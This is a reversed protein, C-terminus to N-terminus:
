RPRLDAAPRAPQCSAGAPRQAPPHHPPHRPPVAAQPLDPLQLGKGGVLHDPRKRPRGRGGPRLVGIGDLVRELQTSEHRQGETVVVSLPRGKGDCGLHLKTTLGGRSRCPAENQM